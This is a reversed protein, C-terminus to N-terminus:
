IKFPSMKAAGGKIHYGSHNEFALESCCFGLVASVANTQLKFTLENEIKSNFTKGQENNSVTRIKYVKSPHWVLVFINHNYFHYITGILNKLIQFTDIRKWYELWKFINLFNFIKNPHTCINHILYALNILCKYLFNSNFLSLSM